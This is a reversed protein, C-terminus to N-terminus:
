MWKHFVSKLQVLGEPPNGLAKEGTIGAVFSTVVLKEAMHKRIVQGEANRRATVQILITGTDPPVGPDVTDDINDPEDEEDENFGTSVDDVTAVEFQIGGDVGSKMETKKRLFKVEVGGSPTPLYQLPQVPLVVAFPFSQCYKSVAAFARESDASELVQLNLRLLIEDESKAMMEGPDDDSSPDAPEESAYLAFSLLHKSCENIVKSPAQHSLSLLSTATTVLTILLLFSAVVM